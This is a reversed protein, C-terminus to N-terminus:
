RPTSSPSPSNSMEMRLAGVPSALSAGATEIADMMKLVISEQQVFFVAWDAGPKRYYAFVEIQPGSPTLNILRARASSKDIGPHGRM